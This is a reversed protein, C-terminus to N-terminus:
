LEMVLWGWDVEDFHSRLGLSVLDKLYQEVTPGDDWRVLAWDYWTVSVRSLDLPFSGAAKGQAGLIADTIPLGLRFCFGWVDM